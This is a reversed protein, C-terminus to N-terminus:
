GTRTLEARLFALPHQRLTLGTSVYDEVVEGGSTMPKLVAKPQVLEPGNAFLPLEQDRLTGIRWITEQRALGLPGM